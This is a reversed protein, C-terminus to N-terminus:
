MQAVDQDYTKRWALSKNVVPHIISNTQILNKADDIVSRWSPGCPVFPLWVFCAFFGLLANRHSHLSPRKVLLGIM